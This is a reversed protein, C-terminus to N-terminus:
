RVNCDNVLCAQHGTTRTGARRCALRSSLRVLRQDTTRHNAKDLVPRDTGYRGQGDFNRVIVRVVWDIVGHVFVRWSWNFIHAECLPPVGEFRIQRARKQESSSEQPLQVTQARLLQLFDGNDQNSTCRALESFCTRRWRQYISSPTFSLMM